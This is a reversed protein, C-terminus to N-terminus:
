TKHLVELLPWVVELAAATEAITLSEKMTTTSKDEQNNGERSDEGESIKIRTLNIRLITLSCKALDAEAKDKTRDQSSPEAETEEEPDESDEVGAESVEAGQASNTAMKPSSEGERNLVDEPCLKERLM